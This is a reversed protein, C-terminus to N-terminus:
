RLIKKNKFYFSDLLHLFSKSNAIFSAIFFITFRGYSCMTFLSLSFLTISKMVSRVYFSLYTLKDSVLRVEIHRSKSMFLNLEIYILRSISLSDLALMVSSEILMREQARETLLESITKSREFFEM